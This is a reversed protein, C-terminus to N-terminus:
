APISVKARATNTRSIMSMQKAHARCSM